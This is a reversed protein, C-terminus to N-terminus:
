SSLGKRNLAKYLANATEVNPNFMVTVDKTFDWTVTYPTTITPQSPVSKSPSEDPFPVYPYPMYPLPSPLKEGILNLNNACNPCVDCHPAVGVNCKPCIWPEKMSM